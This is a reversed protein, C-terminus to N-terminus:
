RGSATQQRAGRWSSQVYDALIQAALRNGAPTWHVDRPYYLQSGKAVERFRDSPDIYPIDEAQCIGALRGAVEGPDYDPQIRLKNWEEASLEVRTPVYLVALAVGRETAERKMRRLLARTITWETKVEATETKQFVSFEDASGVGGMPRDDPLQGHALGTKIARSHLWRNGKVVNRILGYVRLRDQMARAPYPVPVNTLTLNGAADTTFVPKQIRMAPGINTSGNGWVDNYYFALVVLDPQYKWGTQELSLLEQDTSYGAVGLAIVEFPSGLTAELIETFRDQVQVAYGEVFSDGLVLIRSVNPPKAYPREKGRLGNADFRLTTHYEDTILESSFNRKHRWGLLPDYEVFRELHVGNAEGYHTLRLAVEVLSFAFTIAVLIILTKLLLSRM